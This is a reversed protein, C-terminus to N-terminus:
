CAGSQGEAVTDSSVMFGLIPSFDATSTLLGDQLHASREMQALDLCAAACCGSFQVEDYIAQRRFLKLWLFAVCEEEWVHHAGLEFPVSFYRAM